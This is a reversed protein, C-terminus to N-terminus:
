KTSDTLPVNITVIDCKSLFTDFDKEWSVGMDDFKDPKQERDFYLRKVDWAQMVNPLSWKNRSQCGCAMIGPHLETM